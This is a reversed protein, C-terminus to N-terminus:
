VEYQIEEVTSISNSTFDYENFSVLNESHPTVIGYMFTYQGNRIFYVIKGGNVTHLTSYEFLKNPNSLETISIPNPNFSCFMVGIEPEIHIRHLYLKGGSTGGSVNGGVNAIANNVYDETAVLKDNLKATGNRFVNFVDKRATDSSGYAVTFVPLIGNYKSSDKVNYKGFVAQHNAVTRLGEGHQFTYQATGGESDKGGVFCCYSNATNNAGTTFTCAGLSKNNDGTKFSNTGKAEGGTGFASANDGSAVTQNNATFSSAGKAQTKFGNANSGNIGSAISEVGSASSDNALAKAGRNQAHSNRGLAETELGTAIAIGFSKDYTDGWDDRGTPYVENFESQTRGAKTKSGLAISCIQHAVTDKGAALSLAGLAQVGDTEEKGSQAPSYGGNLAVSGVGSAITKGGSKQKIAGDGTGNEINFYNDIDLTSLTEGNSTVKTYDLNVKGTELKSLEYYGVHIRGSSNLQNVIEEDTSYSYPIYMEPLVLFVWLDPVNLSQIYISQGLKYGSSDAANLADIMAKYGGFSVAQQAGKAIQEVQAILRLAEQADTYARDSNNAVVNLLHQLNNQGGEMIILDAHTTPFLDEWVEGTWLKLTTKKAM